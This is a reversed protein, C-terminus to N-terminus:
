RWPPFVLPLTILGELLGKFLIRRSLLYAVPLGLTSQLLCALALTKCTLLIADSVYLANFLIPM